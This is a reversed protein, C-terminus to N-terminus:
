KALGCHGQNDTITEVSHLNNSTTMNVGARKDMVWMMCDSAICLRPVPDFNPETGVAYCDPRDFGLMPCRKTKADEETM